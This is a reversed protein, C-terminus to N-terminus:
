GYSVIWHDIRRELVKMPVPGGLLVVDHFEPLDFREGLEAKAKQRLELIKLMGLKYGLAQAPYAMYREIEATADSEVTGAIDSLYQIAHERTWRKHHLGTDVVLRAARFLEDRLRGLDGFPDDKYLGMEAALQEAYLAWGEIYANLVGVRMLLPLQQRDLILSGQWHHGPTTEHYTLTKLAFKPQAGMDRLNIWYAGPKSGDIAPLMYQGGPSTDQIEVPFARVVVGYSSQTKFFGTMKRTIEAIYGNLDDILAKRGEDSDPYLFRPEKALSTMREGVSGTPYGQDKLLADMQRTIREVESLGLVHIEDPNLDTDALQRVADHYFQEGNPQAWIGSEARAHALLNRVQEALDRYAPYVVDALHKRAEKVLSDKKDASIERVGDLKEAFTMVLPHEAPAPELFGSYLRLVVELLAKPPIWDQSTDAQLKQRVGFIMTDFSKLREIYDSVDKECEVKQDSQMYVPTDVSPGWIQNVVYPSLGMCCDVYGISFDPHGAYYRTLFAMTARIERDGETVSALGYSEIRSSLELLRRRLAKEPRPSFDGLRNAYHQGVAEEPLGFVTAWVPRARFLVQAAEQYLDALTENAAKDETRAVHSQQSTRTCGNGSFSLAALSAAASARLFQRRSVSTKDTRLDTM